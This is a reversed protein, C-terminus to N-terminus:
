LTFGLTLAINSTVTTITATDTLGESYLQQRRDQEARAYSINLNYNGLNYGMGLSFGNLNGISTENRSPSDEYRIGGRLSYNNIRYEGGIRLSNVGGFSDEISTNLANFYTDNEFYNYSNYSISGYDKYSYDISILGNIGFIYAASATLEGPTCLQYTEFINVVRPNIKEVIAQGNEMRRTELLQTTEEYMDYWTPSQLSFGLRINKEVKAIIGVQFSIGYGQVLLNNEFGVNNVLSGANSNSELLLTSRSYYLNHANLNAGLSINQDVQAGFNLTYKNKQGGTLYAYEQYFSGPSITSVYERNENNDGDLPDIIFGQYGLFANQATTGENRGLYSYLSSISEGNQLQLLTLPIGQAQSLFFNGISNVGTGRVILENSYNKEMQYNFAVAFRIDDAQNKFVYVGGAQNFNIDTDISKTETNFYVARNDTDHGALSFAMGSTLFIASGAPNISLASLDGGLAGFAGSLANFRATGNESKSAYIFGDVSNQSLTAQTSLIVLFLCIIRKM